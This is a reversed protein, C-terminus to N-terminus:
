TSAPRYALFQGQISLNIGISLDWYERNLRGLLPQSKRTKHVLVRLTIAINLAEFEKGAYYGDVADLLRNYQERLLNIDNASNRKPM